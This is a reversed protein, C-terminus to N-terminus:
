GLGSRMIIPLHPILLAIDKKVASRILLALKIGNLPFTGMGLLPMEIGNSLEISRM